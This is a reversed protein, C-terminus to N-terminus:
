DSVPRRAFQRELAVPDFPTLALAEPKRAAITDYPEVMFARVIDDFREALVTSSPDLRTVMGLGTPPADLTAIGLDPRHRRLAAITRWVDGSWFETSRERAATREDLPYCDHILIVSDPTCHRELNMFDRLAFEFHHMGDIFALDVRRGGLEGVLDHTAFFADSTEAFVRTNPGLTTEIRPEPDLGICITGPDVLCLSKGRFVGIEVYAAPRLNRHFWQLVELYHAGTLDLRALCHHALPQDHHHELARLALARADQLAGTQLCDTARQALAEAERRAGEGTRPDPLGRASPRKMLSRLLAALMLSRGQGREREDPRVM